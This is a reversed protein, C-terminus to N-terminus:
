YYTITYESDKRSHGDPDTYTGKRSVPFKNKYEYEYTWSETRYRHLNDKYVTRHTSMVNNADFNGNVSTEDFINNIKYSMLGAFPSKQKDYTYNYTITPDESLSQEAYRLISAKIINGGDWDMKIEGTTEGGKAGSEGVLIEAADGAPDLNGLPSLHRKGDNQANEITFLIKEPKGDKSYEFNYSEMYINKYFYDMSSLQKGDYHYQVKEDKSVVESVRTGDYKYEVTYDIEKGNDKYHDIKLLLGNFWTWEESLITNSGSKVYIKNIKKKPSFTGLYEKECATLFTMLALVAIILKRMRM